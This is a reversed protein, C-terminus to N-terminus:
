GVQGFSPRENVPLASPGVNRRLSIAFVRDAETRREIPGAIQDLPEEVLDFVAAPDSRAVVLERGVVKDLKCRDAKPQANILERGLQSVQLRRISEGVRRV